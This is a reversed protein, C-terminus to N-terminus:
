HTFPQIFGEYRGRSPHMKTQYVTKQPMDALLGHVYSKRAAFRNAAGWGLIVIDSEDVVGKIVADNLAGIEHPLGQFDNTQIYAFQNVVILRCVGAFEALGKKFVVKEMFQVSKDAVDEGAYSPNQMVVCATKGTPAADNLIIELRYRYRLDNEWAFQATVSVGDIHEYIM